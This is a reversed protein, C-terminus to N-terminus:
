EARCNQLWFYSKHKQFARLTWVHRHSIMGREVLLVHEALRQLSEQKQFSAAPLHRPGGEKWGGGTVNEGRTACDPWFMRPFVLNGSSWPTFGSKWFCKKVFRLSPTRISVHFPASFIRISLKSKPRKKKRWFEISHRDKCKSTCHIDKHQVELICVM